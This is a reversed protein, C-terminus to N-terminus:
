QSCQLLIFIFEENSFNLIKLKDPASAVESHSLHTLMHICQLNRVCFAGVSIINIAYKNPWLVMYNLM